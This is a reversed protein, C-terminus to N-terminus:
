AQQDTLQEDNAIKGLQQQVQPATFQLLLEQRMGGLPVVRQDNARSLQRVEEVLFDAVVGPQTFPYDAGHQDPRGIVLALITRFVGVAQRYETMNAIKVVQDDLM